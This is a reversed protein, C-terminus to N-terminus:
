WGDGSLKDPTRFGVKSFILEEADAPVNRLTRKRDRWGALFDVAEDLLEIVDRGRVQLQDLQDRHSKLDDLNSHFFRLLDNAIDVPTRTPAKQTLGFSGLVARPDEGQSLRQEIAVQSDGPLRLLKEGHSKTLDGRSIADQIGRPLELLRELRDLSRGSKGCNLRAALRDRVDGEGQPRSEFYTRKLQRYCRALALDDLQQRMLNDCILENVVEPALADTIDLHVVARITQWGLRRACQVRRHGRIITWDATIHIAEQQGRQQLDGSLEELESDTAEPFFDAQRPHAKLTAVEVQREVTSKM